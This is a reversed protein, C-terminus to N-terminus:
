SLILLNEYLQSKGINTSDYVGKWQGVAALSGLHRYKFVDGKGEKLGELGYKNLTEAVYKGQQGAVQALQPLPMTQDCACDGLGFASGDGVPALSKKDNPDTRKVLRLKGDVVLRGNRTKEVDSDLMDRVFKTQKVGTSWVMLGFDISKDNSLIAKSNLIEKVATGTIVEVRRSAFLKEVYNVLTESFSSLIHGSAEILVINAYKFLDPYWRAVDAKIFDYLEAAFEVSTPGGGVVVFTLLKKIEEDSTNPSSAMEFCELLRNRIARSHQLQKLFFVNPNNEVGHVGFTNNESGPAMIIGDYPLSFSEKKFEHSCDITKKKFDVQNVSAQYYHINPITRVPEQIARFELTGVATSPLLPTFL